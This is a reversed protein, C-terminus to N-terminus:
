LNIGEVKDQLDSFTQQTYIATTNIDSHGLIQSLAVIEWPNRRLFNTAFTHRFAHPHTFVGSLRSYTEILSNIGKETMEWRQGQFLFASSDIIPHKEYFENFTERLTQCLPVTRTKNWKSHMILVEWKRETITIDKTRLHIVESVRLWAYSMLEVILKDRINWRIDVEKLFKRLESQSISKPMARVKPIKKVWQTPLKEVYEMEQAKQFFLRLSSLRRNITAPSKDSSLLWAKYDIIDRQICRKFSFEEANVQTYWSYFDKMDFWIAQKTHYGYDSSLLTELVEQFENLTNHRSNEILYDESIPALTLTKSTM